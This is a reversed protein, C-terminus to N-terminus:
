SASEAEFGNVGAEGEDNTEKAAAARRRHVSLIWHVDRGLETGVLVSGQGAGSQVQEQRLQRLTGADHDQQGGAAPGAGLERLFAALQLRVQAREDADRGPRREENVGEERVLEEFPKGTKAHVLLGTVPDVKADM